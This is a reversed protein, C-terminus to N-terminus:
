NPSYPKMKPFGNTDITKIISSEGKIDFLTLTTQNESGTLLTPSSFKFYTGDQFTRNMSDWDVGKTFFVDYRGVSMNKISGVDGRPIYIAYLAETRGSMTVAAVADATNKSNDLTLLIHGSTPPTGYIFTPDTVTASAPTLAIIFSLIMFVAM